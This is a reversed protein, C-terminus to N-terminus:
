RHLPTTGNASGNGNTARVEATLEDLGRVATENDRRAAAGNRTALYAIYAIGVAQLSDILALWVDAM